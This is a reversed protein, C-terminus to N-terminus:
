QCGFARQAEEQAMKLQGNILSVRRGDASLNSSTTTPYLCRPYETPMPAQEIGVRWATKGDNLAIILYGQPHWTAQAPASINLTFGDKTLLSHAQLFEIVIHGCARNYLHALIKGDPSPLVGHQVLPLVGIHDPCLQATNQRTEMVTIEHGDLTIKDFRSLGGELLSEAIVYDPSKMYYLQRIQETRVGTVQRNDSGDPRRVFIQYQQRTPENPDILAQVVAVENGDSSWVAQEPPLDTKLPSTTCASLFLSSLVLWKLSKM